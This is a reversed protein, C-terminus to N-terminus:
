TTLGYKKLLAKFSPTLYGSAPYAPPQARPHDVQWLKILQNYMRKPFKVRPIEGPYIIKKPAKNYYSILNKLWQSRDHVSEPQICRNMANWIRGELANCDRCLVGRVLGAGDPGPEDMKRRRHQHDLCPHEIIRGCLPCCGGQEQLLEERLQKIETTKLVILEQGADNKM